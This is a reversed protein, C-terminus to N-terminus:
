AAEADVWDFLLGKVVKQWSRWSTDAQKSALSQSCAQTKLQLERIAALIKLIHYATLIWGERNIVVFSAIGSTCKGDVTKAVGVVPRTYHRAKAYSERFM